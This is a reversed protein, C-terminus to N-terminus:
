GGQQEVFAALNALTSAMGEAHDEPSIGTPVDHASITVKTGKSGGGAPELEWVMTMEGAYEPADSEFVATQVMRRGPVLEGFRGAVIDSNNASKAAQEAQEYVLTMRYAGGPWPEFQEVQARMGAPALWRALSEPKIFAEYIADAPAAIIREARDVRPENRNNM